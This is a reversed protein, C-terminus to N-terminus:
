RVSAGLRGRLEARIQWPKQRPARQAIARQYDGPFQQNRDAAMPQRQHPSEFLRPRVDCSAPGIRPRCATRNPPQRTPDHDAAPLSRNRVAPLKSASCASAQSAGLRSRRHRLPAGWREACTAWRRSDTHCRADTGGIDRRSITLHAPRGETSASSFLAFSPIRLHNLAWPCGHSSARLRTGARFRNIRQALPSTKM